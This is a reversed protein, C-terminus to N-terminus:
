LTDHAIDVFDRFRKWTVGPRVFLDDQRDHVREEHALVVADHVLQPGQIGMPVAFSEVLLRLPDDDGFVLM